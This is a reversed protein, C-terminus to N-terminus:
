YQNVIDGADRVLDKIMYMELIDRREDWYDLFAPINHRMGLALATENNKNAILPHAGNDLLLKIFTNILAHAQAKPIRLDTSSDDIAEFKIWMKALGHLVTDNENNQLNFCSPADPAQVLSSLGSSSSSSSSSSSTPTDDHYALADVAITKRVLDLFIDPSENELAYMLVTYGMHSAEGEYYGSNDASQQMMSAGADLLEKVIDRRGKIVAWMLATRGMMDTADIDVVKKAKILAKVADKDGYITAHTLPSVFFAAGDVDTFWVMSSPGTSNSSSSNSDASHNNDNDANNNMGYMVSCQGVVACCVAAILLKKSTLMIFGGFTTLYYKNRKNLRAVHWVVFRLKIRRELYDIYKLFELFLAFIVIIVTHM